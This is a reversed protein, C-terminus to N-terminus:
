SRRGSTEVAEKLLKREIVALSESLTSKAVGLSEALRTLSIKRPVEYYGEAMAAHFLERQRKTLLAFDEPAKGRRLSEIDVGPSVRRLHDYLERIKPEAAVVVWTAFGGRILFPLRPMLHLEGLGEMLNETTHAVRYESCSEGSSIREVERVGRYSRIEVALTETREGCLRMDVTTEGSASRVHNEIEITLDAHSLSFQRM